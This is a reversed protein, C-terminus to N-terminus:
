LEPPPTDFFLSWWLRWPEPESTTTEIEVPVVVPPAAEVAISAPAPVVLVEGERVMKGEHHAWDEVFADSSVYELEAVLEAQERRLLEIELVVRHQVDRLAQDAAIRSSFNIALMLGIALIAAFTLQVSSIGPRREKRNGQSM